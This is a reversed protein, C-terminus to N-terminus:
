APGKATIVLRDGGPAQPPVLLTVDYGAADLRVALDVLSLDRPLIHVLTIPHEHHGTKSIWGCAPCFWWATPSSEAM